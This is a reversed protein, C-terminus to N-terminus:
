THDNEETPDPNGVRMMKVKPKSGETSSAGEYCDEHPESLIEKLKGFKM